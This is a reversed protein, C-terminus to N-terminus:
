GGVGGGVSEESKWRSKFFEVPSDHIEVQVKLKDPIFLSGGRVSVNMPARAAVTPLQIPLGVIASAGEITDAALPFPLMVVGVMWIPFAAGGFMETSQGITLDLWALTHRGPAMLRAIDEGVRQLQAQRSSRPAMGGPDWFDVPNGMAYTYQNVPQLIPDPALFRGAEQDYPRAGLLVVGGLAMGGAFRHSFDSTDGDLGELGFPGYSYHQLVTAAGTPPDSTTFKVNGRHDLHRYYRRGSGDLLIRVHGLDLAVPNGQTDYEMNGGFRYIKLPAGSASVRRLRGLGDYDMTYAGRQKLQGRATWAYPEGRRSTVFGANDYTYLRTSGQSREIRLLRNRTANYVFTSVAGASQHDIQTVNSLEDWLYRTTQSSQWGALRHTDFLFAEETSERRRCSSSWTDSHWGRTLGASCDFPGAGLSFCSADEVRGDSDCYNEDSSETATSALAGSASYYYDRHMGNGFNEWSKGHAGWNTRILEQGDAILRTERNASDYNRNIRVIQNGSAAYYRQSTLRGRHDYDLRAHEGDTFDVRSVHGRSDYQYFEAFAPGTGSVASVLQGKADYTNYLSSEIAWYRSDVASLIRGRADYTWESRMGNPLTRAAVQAMPTYEVTSTQPAPPSSETAAVWDTKSVRRGLADYGFTTNGGFPRQISALQHDSRYTATVSGGGASRLKWEVRNRDEDYRPWQDVGVTGASIKRNFLLNGVADYGRSYSNGNTTETGAHGHEGYNSFTTVVQGYAISSLNGFADYDYTRREGEGNESYALRYGKSSGHWSRRALLTGVGDKLLRVPRATPNGPNSERGTLPTYSIRASGGMPDDIVLEDGGSTYTYTVMHTPRAHATIEFNYEGTGWGFYEIENLPHHIVGLRRDRFYRYTTVNGLPDTLNTYDKPFSAKSWGYEFAYAPNGEGQYEIRKPRNRADFTVTYSEGESNSVSMVNGAHSFVFGSWGRAVDLGDRARSLRGEGDYTYEARRAARDTIAHVRGNGDYGITFVNVCDPGPRDTLCQDIAVIRWAGAVYSTGMQLYRQGEEGHWFIRDLLGDRFEHVLGGLTKVRTASLRVWDSGPIRKTGSLDSVDHVAGDPAVFTSGDYTTEFDFRWTRAQGLIKGSNFTRRVGRTGLWTDISLDEQVLILNGGMANVSVGKPLGIQAPRQYAKMGPQPDLCGSLLLGALLAMSARFQARM